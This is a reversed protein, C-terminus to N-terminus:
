LEGLAAKLRTATPHMRRVFFNPKEMGETAALSENKVKMHAATRREGEVNGKSGYFRESLFLHYSLFDGWRM